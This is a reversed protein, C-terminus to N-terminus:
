MFAMRPMGICGTPKLTRFNKKFIEPPLVHIRRADLRVKDLGLAALEENLYGNIKEIFHLIEGSKEIEGEIPELSEQFSQEFHKAVKEREEADLGKGHINLEPREM